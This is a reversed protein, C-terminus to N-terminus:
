RWFNRVGIGRHREEVAHTEVGLEALAIRISRSHPCLRFHTLTHM